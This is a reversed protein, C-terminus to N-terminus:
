AEKKKYISIVHGIRQILESQSTKCITKTIMEREERDAANIRIKVLEHAALAVAIEALVPESLGNNGIIVVPNLQHSKAILQKKVQKDLTM